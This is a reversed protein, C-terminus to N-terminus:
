IATLSLFFRNCDCDTINKELYDCVHHKRERASTVVPTGDGAISLHANNILGKDLSKRLFEKSYIDFLSGYPQDSLLFTQNELSSLLQDITIKEVPQAKYGKKKPKKVPTKLKHLNPNLNHSDSDWLRSFFDYFTGVDPTDGVEFGSLIAYLPNMKLQTAWETISTVKFDISLLYARQMCSPTRPSPGFKSYKYKMM